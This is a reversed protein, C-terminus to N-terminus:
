DKKITGLSDRKIFKTSLVQDEVQEGEILRLATNLAKEGLRTPDAWVSALPPEIKASALMNDYGFIRVDRGPTRGHQKLAEYLGIATDDNVCFIGQIDPNKEIFTDFIGGSYRSLTGEIYCNEDFPMQNEELVRIFTNKREKADTNGEPGGVMGIKRMGLERIMYNMAESIGNYNDYNVSVYGELKSAVLVCPLKSYQQIFQKIRDAQAYCGISDAMILVADLRATQAYSFLTNYQYEYLIEKRATLDRDLYKGPFIVLKVGMERAAKMAGRCVMISFNDTIGSALLGVTVARKM